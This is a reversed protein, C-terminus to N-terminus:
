GPWQLNSHWVCEFNSGHKEWEYVQGMAVIWYKFSPIQPWNLRDKDSPRPSGKPHTHFMGILRCRLDRVINAQQGPDFEFSEKPLESVNKVVVITYDDLVYGCQEPGYDDLLALSLCAYDPIM